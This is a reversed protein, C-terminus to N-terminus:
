DLAFMRRANATTRASVEALSTDKVEALKEAVYSTYSSENRKGRFPVPPLYPSDTELVIHDLDIEALVEPLNTKKYTLVGGIGLMFGMSLIKQAQELSGGFCHFIGRLRNGALEGEGKNKGEEVLEIVDDMSNRCHLILPLELKKAWDIHKRLAAKQEEKYTTDWYYDLGTEGIGYWKQSFVLKEIRAMVEEHDAEVHCPHLGMLPLFFDPAMQRLKEMQPVSDLDINPLIVKENVEKARHVVEEIDDFFHKTYLHSHTDILKSM